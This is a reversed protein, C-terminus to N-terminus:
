KKVSVALKLLKPNIKLNIKKAEGLNIEFRVKEGVLTFNIIGGSEVFQNIEAVTLISRKKVAELIKSLKKEESSSIFLMHCIGETPADQFEKVEVKRGGFNKGAFVKKLSEGFPNIGIVGVIITPEAQLSDPWIVFKVFNAMFIAQTEEKSAAKITFMNEGFLFLVMILTFLFVNRNM